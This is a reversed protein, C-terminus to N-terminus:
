GSEILSKAQLEDLFTELDAAATDPIGGHCHEALQALIAQRDHKGDLLRWIFVSTPDLAFTTNSGPTFLVAWGDLEERLIVMPNAIPYDSM